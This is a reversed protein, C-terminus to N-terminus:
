QPAGVFQAGSLLVARCGSDESLRQFVDRIEAWFTQNMANSKSPRNLQVSVVKSAPSTVALTEFDSYQSLVATCM